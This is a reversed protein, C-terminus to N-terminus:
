AEHGLTGKQIGRWRPGVVAVAFYAALIGIMPIAGLRYRVSGVFLSHLASLYLAPLLLFVTLWWGRGGLRVPLLVAGIVALGWTPLTWAMALMRVGDSRYTEVNPIPNWMRALKVGALRLIRGPDAMISRGSERLFYRNWDAENMGRVADMQKIAGLDSGGNASPGIGDYM